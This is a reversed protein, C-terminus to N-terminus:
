PLLFGPPLEFESLELEGNVRVVSGNGKYEVESKFNETMKM